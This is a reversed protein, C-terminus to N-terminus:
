NGPAPGAPGRHIHQVMGDFAAEIDYEEEEEGRGGGGGEWAAAATAARSNSREISLIEDARSEWQKTGPDSVVVMERETGGMFTIRSVHEKVADDEDM